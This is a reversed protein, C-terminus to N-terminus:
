RRAAYYVAIAEFTREPDRQKANQHRDETLVDGRQRYAEM